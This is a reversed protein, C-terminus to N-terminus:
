ERDEPCGELVGGSIAGVAESKPEHQKLCREIIGNVHSFAM